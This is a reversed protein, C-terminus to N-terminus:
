TSMKTMKRETQSVVCRKHKDKGLKGGARGEKGQGPSAQSACLQAFSLVASVRAGESGLGRSTFKPITATFLRHRPILTRVPTEKESGHSLWSTKEIGPQKDKDTTVHRPPTWGAPLSAQIDRVDDSAVRARKQLRRKKGCAALVQARHAAAM